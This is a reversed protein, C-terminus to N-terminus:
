GVRGVPLTFGGDIERPAVGHKIAMAPADRASKVPPMARPNVM